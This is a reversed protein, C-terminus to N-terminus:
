GPLESNRIGMGHQCGGAAQVREAAAGCSEGLSHLAREKEKEILRSISFSANRHRSVIRQLDPTM